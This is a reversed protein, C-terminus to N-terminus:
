AYLMPINYYTCIKHEIRCGPFQEWDRAFIVVDAYSLQSISHGLWYVDPRGAIETLEVQDKKGEYPNILSADENIHEAKYTNFIDRQTAKIDEDSLGRM